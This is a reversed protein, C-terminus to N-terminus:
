LKLSPGPFNTLVCTAPSGNQADSKTPRPQVGLIQMEPVNRPAAPGPVENPHGRISLISQSLQVKEEGLMHGHQLHQLREIYGKIKVLMSLDLFISKFIPGGCFVFVFFLNLAIAFQM